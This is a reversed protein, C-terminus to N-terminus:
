GARNATPILHAATAKFVAAVPSGVELGLVEVSAPTVTAVASPIVAGVPDSGGEDANLRLRLRLVPGAPSIAEVRAALRNRASGPAAATPPFLTIEEPRLCVLAFAPPSASAVDIPQGAIRYTAIGAATQELAAPWVNEVGVFAAVEADAPAGFVEAPPGEQRMLGDILVVIRDGLRLAEDRDHTVLVTAPRREALVSAFDEILEARTPADLSAFPEDLLLVEPELSFARALSVRQAEGGSVDHAHRDALHGVGFRDLWHQARERRKVRPVGRLRLGVELNRRVSMSLLRPEQFATAMRRRTAIPDRHMSAGDLLLDGKELEILLQLARLLTSKGSGNPGILATTLADPIDLAQVDLVVRDDRLVRCDRIRIKANPTSRVPAGLAQTDSPPAANSLM